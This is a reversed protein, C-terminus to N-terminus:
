TAHGDGVEADTRMSQPHFVEQVVYLPRRRGEDATRWLYEGLVGLVVLQLGGLILVVVVVTTWGELPSSWFLRRVTLFAAYVFGLAAVLLGAYTMLRVPAFSFEVFSDLALKVKNANSWKTTGFRREHQPYTVRCSPFGTWAILALVNRNREPLTRVADSVRRSCLFGSPGEEPYGELDSFRTLMRTFFTSSLRTFFPQDVRQERIGWVIDHGEEWRQLFMGILEPPEQLDGGIVIHCDGGAEELGASIAYHSGFNRTLVVLTLDSRQEVHERLLEVTRDTSGDDVVIFEFRREPYAAILEDFRDALAAVNAEEDLVPVIVSVEPRFVASM